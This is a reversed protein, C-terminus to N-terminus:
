RCTATIRTQSRRWSTTNAWVWILKLRHRRMCASSNITPLWTGITAPSKQFSLDRSTPPSSTIGKMTALAASLHVALGTIDADCAIADHVDTAADIHMEIAFSGTADAVFTVGAPGDPGVDFLKDYGHIHVEGHEDSTMNFVASDGQKVVFSSEGGTLARDFVTLDFEVTEPDGGGGCAAVTLVLLLTSVAAFVTLLHYRFRSSLM